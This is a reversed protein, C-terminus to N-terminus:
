TLLAQVVDKAQKPDSSEYGITILNETQARLSVGRTLQSLLAEKAAVPDHGKLNRDMDSLKIVQELNPRSMLTRQMYDVQRAPNLDVALGRLLPTLIPDANLYVRTSSEYRPPMLVVYSWGLGCIFWAIAVFLWKYRWIQRLYPLAQSEFIARM